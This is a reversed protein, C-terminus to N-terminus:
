ATLNERSIKEFIGIGFSGLATGIAVAEAGAEKMRTFGSADSVGGVGIIYIHKLDPHEDLMRRITRVNGLALPHLAAGALGGIGSGNSSNIAPLKTSSDIALCSGLTNTATIFDIPSQCYQPRELLADILDKFQGYYTYPPTKIGIEVHFETFRDLKVQLKSLYTLLEPKSYAPPPKGDINPCSLNIEMKWSSKRWESHIHLLEWCEPIEDSTGTVSFIVSKSIEPTQDEIDKVMAIYDALKIPSYGLTNLSSTSDSNCQSKDVKSVTMTAADFFCYQHVSEDHRFGELLSTRITIAGTFSCRYLAEIEQRTTAWVNASNLLPPDIM